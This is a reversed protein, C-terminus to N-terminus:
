CEKNELIWIDGRQEIVNYKEYIENFPATKDITCKYRYRGTHNSTFISFGLSTILCILVLVGTILCGYVPWLRWFRAYTLALIFFIFCFLCIVIATVLEFWYPIESTLIETKNLITM